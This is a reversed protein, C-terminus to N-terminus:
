NSNSAHCLLHSLFVVLGSSGGRWHFWAWASGPGALPPSGRIGVGWIGEAQPYALIGARILGM